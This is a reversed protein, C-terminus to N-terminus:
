HYDEFDLDCVERTSGDIWFTLRWNRNVHLSWTGKRSGALTHAKWVPVDHLEAAENMIDLFAIMKRLKDLSPPPLGKPDDQEYLRKLGKHLVNRIKVGPTYRTVKRKDIAPVAPGPARIGTSDTM